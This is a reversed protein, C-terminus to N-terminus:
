VSQAANWTRNTWFPNIAKWGTVSLNIRRIWERSHYIPHYKSVTDLQIKPHIFETYKNNNGEKPSFICLLLIYKQPKHKEFFEEFESTKWLIKRSGSYSNKGSKLMMIPSLFLLSSELFDKNYSWYFEWNHQRACCASLM